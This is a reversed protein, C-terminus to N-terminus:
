PKGRYESQLQLPHRLKISLATEEDVIMGLQFYYERKDYDFARNQAPYVHFTKLWEMEDELKDEAVRYILTNM